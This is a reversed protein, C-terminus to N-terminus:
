KHKNFYESMVKAYDTLAIEPGAIDPYWMKEWEFNFYGKYRDKKLVDVAEFIPVYGKGVLAPQQKGNVIELDKLHTHHIYKKLRVYVQAPPEKYKNWMNVVDWMFGVNPKNVSKMVKEIEESQLLDGHSELLVIVGKDRAFDGLEQLSAIIIEISKSKEDGKALRNPLVRIFPCKLQQALDIFRKAEDMNKDREAGNPFHMAASSSLCIVKIKKDAILKRTSAINKDSFEACKPLDLERHLGRFEIGSYNNNVAFNLITELSWDPCGLTSFSLRPTYKKFDFPSMAFALSALTSTKIFDRRNLDNM